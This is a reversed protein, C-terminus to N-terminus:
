QAAERKEDQSRMWRAVALLNRWAEPATGDQLGAQIAEVGKLLWERDARLRGAELALADLGEAVVPHLPMM